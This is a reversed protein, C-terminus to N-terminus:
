REDICLANSSERVSCVRIIVKNDSFCKTRLRARLSIQNGFTLGEESGYYSSAVNQFCVFTRIM